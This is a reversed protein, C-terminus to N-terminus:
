PVDLLAATAAQVLFSEANEEHVSASLPNGAINFAGAKIVESDAANLIKIVTDGEGNPLDQCEVNADALLIAHTSANFSRARIVDGLADADIASTNLRTAQIILGVCDEPEDAFVAAPAAMLLVSVLSLYVTGRTQKTKM